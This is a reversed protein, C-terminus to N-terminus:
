SASSCPREWERLPCSARPWSASRSQQKVPVRCVFAPRCDTILPRCDATPLRQDSALRQDGTAPQEVENIFKPPGAAIVQRGGVVSWWSGVVLQRCGVASM